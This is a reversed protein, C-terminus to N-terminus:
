SDKDTGEDGHRAADDGHPGADGEDDPKTEPDESVKSPVSRRRKPTYAIPVLPVTLHAVGSQKPAFAERLAREADDFLSPQRQRYHEAQEALTSRSRRFVRGVAALSAGNRTSLVAAIIKAQTITRRRSDSLMAQYPVQCFQAVVRIVDDISPRGPATEDPRRKIRAAARKDLSRPREFLALVSPDISHRRRRQYAVVPNAYALSDFVGDTAIWDMSRPHLYASETTWCPGAARNAGASTPPRHLWLVFDDLYEHADFTFAGYRKFVGGPLGYRRRLHNAYGGSLHQAVSGISAHALRVAFRMESGECRCGHIAGGCWFLMRRAIFGVADWDEKDQVLAFVNRARLILHFCDGAVNQSTIAM